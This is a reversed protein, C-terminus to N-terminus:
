KDPENTIFVEKFTSKGSNDLAGAFYRGAPINEFVYIDDSTPNSEQVLNAGKWPENDYLFFIFEPEGQEIIVEIKGNTGEAPNAPSSNVKISFVQGAVSMYAAALLIFCTSIIIKKM